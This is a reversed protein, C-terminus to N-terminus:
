KILLVITMTIFFLQQKELNNKNSKVCHIGIFKATRLPDWRINKEALTPIFIKTIITFFESCNQVSQGFTGKSPTYSIRKM